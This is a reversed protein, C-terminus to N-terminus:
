QGEKDPVKYFIHYNASYTGPYHDRQVNIVSEESIGAKKMAENLRALTNDYFPMDYVSYQRIM